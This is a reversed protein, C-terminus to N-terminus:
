NGSPFVEERWIGFSTDAITVQTPGPEPVTEQGFIVPGGGEKRPGHGAYAELLIDFREGPKGNKTLTIEKHGFDIAGIELGNVWVM